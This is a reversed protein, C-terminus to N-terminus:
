QKWGEAKKWDSRIKEAKYDQGIKQYAECLPNIYQEWVSRTLMHKINEGADAMKQYSEWVPEALNIIQAWAEASRCNNIIEPYLSVPPVNSLGPVPTLAAMFSLLSRNSPYYPSFIGWLKWLQTSHPMVQLANEIVGINRRAFSQLQRSNKIFPLGYCLTIEFDNSNFLMHPIVLNAIKVYEGWIEQDASEDLFNDADMKGNPTRINGLRALETLLIIKGTISEQNNKSFERCNDLHTKRRMSYILGMISDSTPLSHGGHHYDAYDDLIGWVFTNNSFGEQTILEVALVHNPNMIYPFINYEPLKNQSLVTKIHDSLQANYPMEPQFTEKELGASPDVILLRLAGEAFVMDKLKNFQIRTRIQNGNVPDGIFSETRTEPAKYDDPSMPFEYKHRKAMEIASKVEREFMPRLSIDFYIENAKDFDKANLCAELLPFINEKWHTDRRPSSIDPNNTESRMGVPALDDLGARWLPWMFEIIKRWDNSLRAEEAMWAMVNRPPWAFNIGAPLDALQPYFDMLRRGTAQAMVQWTKWLSSDTQRNTLAEEIRPLNRKYIAKMAPSHLPMNDPFWSIGLCRPVVPLWDNGAFTMTLLETLEGWINLDDESSLEEIKEPM